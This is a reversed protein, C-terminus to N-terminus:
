KQSLSDVLPEKGSRGESGAAGRDGGRECGGVATPLAGVGVCTDGGKLPSGQITVVTLIGYSNM